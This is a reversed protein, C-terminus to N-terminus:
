KVSDRQQIIGILDLDVDIAVCIKQVLHAERQAVCQPKVSKHKVILPCHSHIAGLHIVAYTRSLRGRPFVQFAPLEPGDMAFTCAARWRCYARNRAKIVSM